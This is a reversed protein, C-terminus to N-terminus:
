FYMIFRSSIKFGIQNKEYLRRESALVAAGHKKCELVLNWVTM